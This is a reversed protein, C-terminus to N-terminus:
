ILYNLNNNKTKNSMESRYKNWSITREFRTKLQQLLKNDNEASLTVVSVYLKTDKIKFTKGTPNNIEDVAADADPNAERTVKSTLVCSESGTLALSVECSILPMGLTRWSNSLYKLLVVIKVDDKEVDDCELKGTISTKYNFSKSDKISYDINNEACLNPEDRYYNWLSGTMKRYIKCYETLNYKPMVIVLDKVNNILTNNIKTIWSNFPPTNKFALKKDYADNDPDAVFFKGKVVIYADSYDCLDSRLM